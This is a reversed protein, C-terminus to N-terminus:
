QIYIPKTSKDLYVPQWKRTVEVDGSTSIKLKSILPEPGGKESRDIGFKQPGCPTIGGNMIITSLYTSYFEEEVM